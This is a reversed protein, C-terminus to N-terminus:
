RVPKPAAAGYPTFGVRRVLLWGIGLGACAIIWNTLDFFRGEVLIHGVEVIAALWVGSWLHSWRGTFRLPWVALMCGMPFYLFFQQAIHLVSFTDMRQALAQLPIFHGLTFQSAIISPSTEPFFPRWGWLALVVAYAGFAYRAREAGRLARSLPGLWRHAGWAGISWAVVHVAAAEWRIPLRILGHAVEAVIVLLSGVVAVRPWADGVGRESLMMVVLFGAPAFLLFDTVPIQSFALPLSAHLSIQLWTLPGSGMNTDMDASFLPTLVECLVALVYSGAVLFAPIGLYSKAGKTRAVDAILYAVGLAGLWAGLTNTALDMISATRSPSFLQVGEVFASLLCGVLVARRIEAKVRGAGSTAMWVAGLGAFLAVNRLGDLADGLGLTPDLSRALRRAAASLDGSLHLDTLTALAVVGVYAIRTTRYV